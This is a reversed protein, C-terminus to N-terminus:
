VGGIYTRLIEIAQSMHGAKRHLELVMERFDEFSIESLHEAIEHANAELALPHSLMFVGLGAQKRQILHGIEHALVFRLVKDAYIADVRYFDLFMRSVRIVPAAAKYKFVIKAYSRRLPSIVVTPVFPIPVGYRVEARYCLEELIDVARSHLDRRTEIRPVVSM